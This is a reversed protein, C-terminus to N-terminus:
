DAIQGEACIRLQRGAEGEPLVCLPGVLKIRLFSFLEAFDSLSSFRAPPISTHKWASENWLPSGPKGSGPM